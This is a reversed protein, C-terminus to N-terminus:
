QAVSQMQRIRQRVAQTFCEVEEPNAGSAKLGTRIQEDTIRGVYQLLWKVDAVRIGQTTDGTHNGYFGWRVEGDRVGKIFRSTQDTYNECDWKGRQFKGGWKGMTAGWDTVLYSWTKQGDMSIERIGTNSGWDLSRGDKNDWNSTLMMIIKLGNLERTGLFPNKKWSWDEEKLLNFSEDRLSFRANTFEGQAGVYKAARTLVKLDQIQGAPVFYNAPVDYGAAWALRSAFTEAHAEKDWKVSWRRGAADMVKVKPNYGDRDEELFRFPPQPALAQGGPGWVFDLNEVDGPDRWLVHAVGKGAAVDGAKKNKEPVAAPSAALLLAIFISILISLFHKRPSIM